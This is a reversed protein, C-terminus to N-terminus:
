GIAANEVTFDHDRRLMSQVEVRDFETNMRGGRAHGKKRLLNRGRDHEEIQKALFIAIQHVFWKLEPAVCQLLQKGRRPRREMQSWRRGFSRNRQIPKAAKLTSAKVPYHRFCGRSNVLWILPDHEFHFM